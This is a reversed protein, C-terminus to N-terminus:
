DGRHTVLTSPQLETVYILAEGNCRTGSWPRGNIEGYENPLTANLDSRFIVKGRVFVKRGNLINAKKQDSRSLILGICGPGERRDAASFLSYFNVGGTDIVGSVGVDSAGAAEGRFVSDFSTPTKSTACGSFCAISFTAIIRLM